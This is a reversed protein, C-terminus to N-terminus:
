CDSEGEVLVIYGAERMRPLNNLGYLTPKSGTRWRFKDDGFLALRLRTSPANETEDGYPIAIAPTGRMNIDTIGCCDRLFEVPIRKAAAYQELTLGIDAGNSHHETGGEASNEPESPAPEVPEDALEQPAAAPAPEIKSKRRIRKPISAGLARFSELIDKHSCDKSHCKAWLSGNDGDGFALNFNRGGHVPCPARYHDSERRVKPLISAIKEALSM